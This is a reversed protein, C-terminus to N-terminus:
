PQISWIVTLGKKEIKSFKQEAQNLPQIRCGPTAYANLNSDKQQQLLFARFAYASADTDIM